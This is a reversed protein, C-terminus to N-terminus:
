GRRQKRALLRTQTRQALRAAVFMTAVGTTVPALPYLWGLDRIEPPGAVAIFALAGAPPHITDTIAMLFISAPVATIALLWGPAEPMAHATLVGTCAAILSGGFANRVRAAESAPMGNFVVASAGFAAILPPMASADMIALHLLATAGLGAMAGLMAIVAQAVGIRSDSRNSPAM